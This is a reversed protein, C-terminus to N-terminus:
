MAESRLYRRLEPYFNRFAVATAVAALFVIIMKLIKMGSRQSQHNRCM